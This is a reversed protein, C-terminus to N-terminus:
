PEETPYDLLAVVRRGALKERGPLFSLEVLFACAVVEGGLEEVLDCCAAATGGTALLDDLVLVRQGPRIADRHVTLTDTGYELEYSREVTEAPLKGPKRVPVFGAGLRCAVAGGFIFGRAEAAMVVDVQEGAFPEALADVAAQFGSADKILTTIDIFVIGPKPFDAIKRIRSKLDM